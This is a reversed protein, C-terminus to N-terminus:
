AAAVVRITRPSPRPRDASVSASPGRLRTAPLAAAVGRRRRPSDASVSASPGCIQTAAVGRRRRPDATSATASSGRLRTTPSLVNPSFRIAAVGRRTRPSDASAPRRSVPSPRTTRLPPSSKGVGRRYWAVQAGHAGGEVAVYRHQYVGTGHSRKDCWGRVRALAEAEAEDKAVSLLTTAADRERKAVDAAADEFTKRAEDLVAAADAAALEISLAEADREGPAVGALVPPRHRPVKAPRPALDDDVFDEADTLFFCAARLRRLQKGAPADGGNLWAAAADLPKLVADVRRPPVGRIQSFSERAAAAERAVRRALHEVAVAPDYGDDDEPNAPAGCCADPAPPAGGRKGFGFGRLFGGGRFAPTKAEVQDDGDSEDEDESEDDDDDDDAFFQSQRRQAGLPSTGAAPVTSHGVAAAAAEDFAAAAAADDGSDSDEEDESSLQATAARLKASARRPPADESEDSEDDVAARSPPEAPRSSARRPPEAPRSPPPDEDGGSEDAAAVARRRPDDEGRENAAVGRRETAAASSLSSAADSAEAAELQRKLRENEEELSEM